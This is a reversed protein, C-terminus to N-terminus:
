DGSTPPTSGTPPDNERATDLQGDAPEPQQRVSLLPIGLDALRALLGHLAAQDAVVGRLVTTRDEHTLTLGDFRAAWRPALRGRLRIEYVSSDSGDRATNESM